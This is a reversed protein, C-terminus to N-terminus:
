TVAWVVILPTNPPGAVARDVQLTLPALDAPRAEFKFPVAIINNNEDSEAVWNFIDTKFILYYDGSVGIPLVITNSWWNVIGPGTPGPVYWNSIEADLTDLTPDMSLYVGDYRSLAEGTGQNTVYCSTAVTPNPESVIVSPVQFRIPALDPLGGLARSCFNFATIAFTILTIFKM